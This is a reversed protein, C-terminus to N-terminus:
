VRFERGCRRRIGDELRRRAEPSMAKLEDMTFLVTKRDEDQRILPWPLALLVKELAEAVDDEFLNPVQVCKKEAYLRAFATPDLAPNLRLELM